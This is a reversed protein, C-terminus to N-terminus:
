WACLTIGGDSQETRAKEGQPPRQLWQPQQSRALGGGGTAAQCSRGHQVRGPEPPDRQLKFAWAAALARGSQVCGGWCAPQNKKKKKALHLIFATSAFASIAVHERGSATYGIRRM